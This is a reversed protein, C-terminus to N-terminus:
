ITLLESYSVHSCQFAAPVRVFANCIIELALRFVSQELCEMLRQFCNKGVDCRRCLRIHDFFCCQLIICPIYEVSAINFHEQDLQETVMCQEVRLEATEVAIVKRLGNIVFCELVQLDVVESM